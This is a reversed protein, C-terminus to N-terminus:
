REARGAGRGFAPWRTTAPVDETIVSGSAVYAGDGITVPAVLASLELRHLRRRRDRHPIQRYGDYNCTITGAGINAGAGVPRRRYLHPPQGQRRREIVANKVEFFNGVKRRRASIPARGCGRSRGSM